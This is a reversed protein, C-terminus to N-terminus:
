MQLTVQTSLAVWCSLTLVGKVTPAASASLLPTIENIQEWEGTGGQGTFVRTQKQGRNLPGRRM